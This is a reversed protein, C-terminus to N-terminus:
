NAIRRAADAYDRYRPVHTRGGLITRRLNPIARRPALDAVALIRRAPLPAAPERLWRKLAGPDGPFARGLLVRNTALRGGCGPQLGPAATGGDSTRSGSRPPGDRRGFGPGSPGTRLV